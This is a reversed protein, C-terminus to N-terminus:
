VYHTQTTIMQLSCTTTPSASPDARWSPTLHTSVWIPNSFTHLVGPCVHRVGKKVQSTKPHAAVESIDVSLRTRAHRQIARKQWTTRPRSSFMAHSSLSTALPSRSHVPTKSFTKSTRLQKAGVLWWPMTPSAAHEFCPQTNSNGHPSLILHSIHNPMVSPRWTQVKRQYM